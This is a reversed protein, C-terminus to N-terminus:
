KISGVCSGCLLDVAPVEQVVDLTALTLFKCIQEGEKEGDMDPAAMVM